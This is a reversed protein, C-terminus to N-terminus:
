NTAMLIPYSISSINGQYPRFRWGKIKGLLCSAFITNQFRNMTIRRVRGNNSIDFTLMVKGRLKNGRKLHKNYCYTIAGRNQKIVKGVDHQTLPTDSTNFDTTGRLSPTRSNRGRLFVSAYLDRENKKVGKLPIPKPTDNNQPTRTHSRTRIYKYKNRYVTTTKEIIIPSVDRDLIGERRMHVRRGVTESTTSKVPQDSLGPIYITNTLGLIAIIGGILVIGFLVFLVIGTRRRRPQTTPLYTVGGPVQMVPQFDEDEIYGIKIRDEVPRRAQEKKNQRQESRKEFTPQVVMEEVALAEEAKLEDKLEDAEGIVLDPSQEKEDAEIEAALETGALHERELLADVEGETIPAGKSLRKITPLKESEIEYDHADALVSDEQLTAGIPMFGELSVDGDGPKEDEGGAAEDDALAEDEPAAAEEGTQVAAEPIELSDSISSDEPIPSEALLEDLTGHRRTEALAAPEETPQAELEPLPELPSESDIVSGKTPEPLTDEGAPMDALEPLTDDGAPMDALEPLTDDGAPVDALEPLSEEAASTEALEPLSEEAASTETLEPLIDDTDLADPPEPLSEEVTTAATLGPMFAEDMAKEAGAEGEDPFLLDSLDPIEDASPEKLIPEESPPPLEEPALLDDLQFVADSSSGPQSEERKETLGKSPLAEETPLDDALPGDMLDRDAEEALAEDAIPSAIRAEEEALQARDQGSAEMPEEATHSDPGERVPAEEATWPEATAKFAQGTVSELIPLLEPISSCCDWDGMGDKWAFTNEDAQGSALKEQVESLTLPGVPDGNLAMFWEQPTPAEYHAKAQAQQAVENYAMAAGPDAHLFEESHSLRGLEDSAQGDSPPKGGSKEDFANEFARDFEADLSSSQFSPQQVSPEMAPQVPQPEAGPERVVIINKCKKCRIKLIKGRVKDEPISYKTKCHDCSFKM